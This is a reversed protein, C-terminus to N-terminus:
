IRKVYQPVRTRMCCAYADATIIIPPLLPQLPQQYRRTSESVFIFCKNSPTSSVFIPWNYFFRTTEWANANWTCNENTNLICRHYNYRSAVLGLLAQLCREIIKNTRKPKEPYCFYKEEKTYLMMINFVSSYAFFDTFVLNLHLPNSSLTANVLTSFTRM